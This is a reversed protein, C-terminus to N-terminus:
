IVMNKLPQVIGLELRKMPDQETNKLMAATNVVAENIEATRERVARRINTYHEQLIPIFLTKPQSSQVKFERQYQEATRNLAVPGGDPSVAAAM